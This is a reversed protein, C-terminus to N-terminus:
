QKEAPAAAKAGDPDHLSDHDHTLCSGHMRCLGRATRESLESVPIRCLRCSGIREPLILTIENGRRKKDSLAIEALEEATFDTDVPLDQKQLTQRIREADEPDLIGMDVAINSAIVTGIAVAHGHTVSFMSKKEIAHGLTHGLNLMQRRGNDFEDEMVVDRKISVCEEIIEPLRARVNGKEFLEFLSPSSLIGYKVSEAIGDAFIEPTLTDLTRCDCIVLSPQWFAGALNKGAPLDMGTKGGVSSDVAALLTTPIQVFRIGRLYTAAAFGAMDGTVGGGLAIVADTRTLRNEALFNLMNIYTEPTKSAEGNAFVFSCVEFGSAKLSSAVEEAYLGNVIDDTIIATKAAGPLAKRILEGSQKLLDEGILVEYSRGAEVKVTKM